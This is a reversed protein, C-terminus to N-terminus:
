IAEISALKLKRVQDKVHARARDLRGDGKLAGLQKDIDALKAAATAAQALNRVDTAALVQECELFLRRRPRPQGPGPCRRPGPRHGRPHHEHVARAHPRPDLAAAAPGGPVPDSARQAAAPLPRVASAAEQELRARLKPLLRKPDPAPKPGSRPKPQRPRSTSM